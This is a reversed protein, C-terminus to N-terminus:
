NESLAIEIKKAFSKSIENFVKSGTASAISPGHAKSWWNEDIADQFDPTLEPNQPQETQLLLLYEKMKSKSVNGAAACYAFITPFLLTFSAIGTTQLLTYERPNRFCSPYLEKIVNWYNLLMEAIQEFGMRAYARETLIKAIWYTLTYDKVLHHPEKKEGTYQIKQYFPSNEESELYDVIYAAMAQREQRPGVVVEKLWEKDSLVIKNVMMQLHKYVLDTPIKKQRSNVIYFHLMEEFRDTLNLISVPLPYESFEPRTMMARKLAELRHQGDIIWLKEDDPITLEGLEINDGMKEETKFKLAGRVNVLISTPFVGIENLLYRVISGKGSGFRSEKPPRQYGQRNSKTWRDIEVNRYLDKLKMTTLYLMTPTAGKGYGWEQIRFAKIKM